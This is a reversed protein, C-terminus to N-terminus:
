DHSVTAYQALMNWYNQTEFPLRWPAVGGLGDQVALQLRDKFSRSTDLWYQNQGVNWTQIVQELAAQTPADYEGATAGTVHFDQQFQAVAAATKPGYYGDQVLLAPPTQNHTVAYRLLIYNLLGQLNQVSPLYTGVNATSLPASPAQALPGTMFVEEKQVPDWVPMISSDSQLLQQAARDTVDGDGQIGVQNNFTWEHGYPAVGLIVQHPNIGTNLTLQITREVFPYGSTPGAQGGYASNEPYDMVNIATVYPALATYNYITDPYPAPYVDVMLNKGFARLAQSLQAVFNTYQQAAQARTMTAHVWSGNSGLYQSQTEYVSSNEFDITVGDYNNAQVLNVIQQILSSVDSVTSLPGDAPNYYVGIMPWVQVRHQHAFQTVASAFPPGSTILWTLNPQQEVYYWTPNIVSIDQYHDVLDQYSGSTNYPNFDGYAMSLFGAPDTSATTGSSSGSSLVTSSSASVTLTALPSVVADELNGSAAQDEADVQVHYTGVQHPTLTFTATPQFSGSDHWVGSPNEWRWLFVPDILNGAQASLTVPQDVTASTPVTETVQSQVNLILTRHLAQTWLGAQVQAPDLAYVRIVESGPPLNTLTLSPDAAYGQVQRWGQATEVWFQYWPTQGNGDAHATFTVTSGASVSGSPGTLTLDSVAPINAAATFNQSVSAPSVAQVPTLPSVVAESANPPALPDKAYVQIHYVGAAHPTFTWTPTSRYSGSDHWVGSPNEWWWQYVPSILNRAAATVTLPQDVTASTPVTETVQSQVNLILTRHLAQTWLGAQVQAPDLAYVRIVESGPPLNTLTLSPDAAYGQVQRWGQATEVWFQYWPTQGNGDAHATFTVTSGASVSGSPGTLTLHSATLISQAHARPAIFIAVAASFSLALWWRLRVM